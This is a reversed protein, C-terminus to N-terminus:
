EVDYTIMPLTVSSRSFTVRTVNNLVILGPTEFSMSGTNFRQKMLSLQSGNTVLQYRFIKIMKIMVPTTGGSSPLLTRFFNDPSGFIVTNDVPHFAPLQGSLTFVDLDNSVANVVGVFITYRSPTTLPAGLARWTIPSYLMMLNGSQWYGPVRNSLYSNNNVGVYAISGAVGPTAGVTLNYAAPPDYLVPAARSPDVTVFLIDDGATSLTLVRARDAPLLLRDPYDSLLDFFQRGNDDPQLLLNFSAGAGSLDNLIIRQGITEEVTQDLKRQIRNLMKMSSFSFSIAIFLVITSVVAVMLVEVLTFGGQKKQIM